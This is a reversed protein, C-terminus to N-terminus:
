INDVPMRIRPIVLKYPSFHCSRKRAPQSARGGRCPVAVCIVASGAARNRCKDALAAFAAASAVVGIRLASHPEPPFVPNKRVVPCRNPVAPSNNAKQQLLLRQHIVGIRIVRPTKASNSIMACLEAMAGNM